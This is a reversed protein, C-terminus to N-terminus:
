PRRRVDKLATVLDACVPGPAYRSEALARAALSVAHRRAPDASLTVFARAAAGVDEMSVAMGGDGTQWTMVADRHHVVPLGSALAELIAISFPEALSGLSYVDAAQYLRHVRERPVRGVLHARAGLSQQVALRVGESGEEDGGAHLLLAAPAAAIERALHDLRKGSVTGIPGVTLVVFADAPLGFETRAAAREAPSPPRFRAIDAFHPVAFFRTAEAASVEQRAADLYPQALLHVGDLHRAWQPSLRMGNMFVVAAGHLAQFRKLHWAVVPDGTYAVTRQRRRLSLVLGPLMSLQEWTYRQSWPRGAIRPHDRNLSWLRRTTRPVKPPPGGTWLEVDLDRPLHVALEDMWIEVGRTTYGAGSSILALKLPPPPADPGPQM